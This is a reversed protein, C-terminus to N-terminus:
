SARGGPLSVFSPSITQRADAHARRRPSLRGLLRPAISQMDALFDRGFRGVSTRQIVFLLLDQIVHLPV